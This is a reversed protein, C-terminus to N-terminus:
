ARPFHRLRARSHDQGADDVTRATLAQGIRVHALDAESVNVQLRVIDIKAVKLISMGPQVLTGPAINRATVLGGLAARITTYGRM